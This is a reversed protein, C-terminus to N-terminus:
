HKRFRALIGFIDEQVTLGCKLVNNLSFGSSRKASADFVVDSTSLSSTKIVGHHPLYFSPEPITAEDVVEVMHKMGIYEDMFKTYETRLSEDRQLRREVSLFRSAAMAITSGLENVTDKRTLHIVFRGEGDRYTTQKFHALALEEEFCRQNASSSRGFRSAESNM